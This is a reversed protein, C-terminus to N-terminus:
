WVSEHLITTIFVLCWSVIIHLPFSKIWAVTTSSLDKTPGIRSTTSMTNRGLSSCVNLALQLLNLFFGVEQYRKQDCWGWHSLACLSSRKVGAGGKQNDDSSWHSWDAYFKKIKKCCIHLSMMKWHFLCGNLIAGQMLGGGCFQEEVSKMSAAEFDFTVPFPNLKM